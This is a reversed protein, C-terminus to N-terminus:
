GHAIRIVSGDAYGHAVDAVALISGALRVWVVGGVRIGGLLQVFFSTEVLTM